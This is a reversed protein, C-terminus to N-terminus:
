LGPNTSIEHNRTQTKKHYDEPSDLKWTSIWKVIWLMSLVM